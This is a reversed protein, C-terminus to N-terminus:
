LKKPNVRIIKDDDSAPNGRGDRNSTTIYLMGDPGAIVERIRGYTSKFYEKLQLQDTIDVQYLSQGRLGAFYLSGNLYALGAPAWTAFGSELHPPVMGDATQKGEIEPWGYNKRIEIKNLEDHANQGHETSWLENNQDWAIGQPNRHGYSYVLNNFPNGAVPKGDGTVRLIKGALSNQDQALSPERADGTTIYLNNDPGFRIRGGDHFIAGPINDVIIRKDTFTENKYIYRAVRNRTNNGEGSYTYYLYIFSNKLFEPHLAIGHLGGEGYPLVDDLNMITKATKEVESTSYISTDILKVRGARETVLLDGDPLFALAWPVELNTAIISTAPIDETVRTTVPTKQVSSQSPKSTSKYIFSGALIIFFVILLIVVRKM